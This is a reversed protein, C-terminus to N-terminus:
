ITKLETRADYKPWRPDTNVFHKAPASLYAGLPGARRVGGLFPHSSLRCMLYSHGLSMMGTACHAVVLTCERLLHLKAMQPTYTLVGALAERTNASGVPECVSLVATCHAIAKPITGPGDDKSVYRCLRPTLTLTYFGHGSSLLWSIDLRSGGRPRTSLPKKRFV